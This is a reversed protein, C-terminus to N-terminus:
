TVRKYPEDPDVLPTDGGQQTSVLAAIGGGAGLVTHFGQLFMPEEFAAVQGNFAYQGAVGPAAM